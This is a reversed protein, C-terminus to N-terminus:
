IIEMIKEKGKLIEDKPFHPYKSLYEDYVKLTEDYKEMLELSQGYYRYYDNIVDYDDFEMESVRKFGELSENFKGLEALIKSKMVTILIDKPNNKLIRDAYALANEYDGKYMYANCMTGLVTVNECDPELIIEISKIAEDHRKLMSYCSSKRLLNIASNEKELVRDFYDLANDYEGLYLYCLGKYGLSDIHGPNEALFKDFCCLALENENLIRYAIGKNYCVGVDDPVIKVLEDFCRFANEKDYMHAHFFGKLTLADLNNYKDMALIKDLCSIAKKYQLMDSYYDAKKFYDKIIRKTMINRLKKKIM